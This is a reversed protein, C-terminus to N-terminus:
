HLSPASPACGIGSPAPRRSRPKGLAVRRIDGMQAFGNLSELLIEVHKGALSLRADPGASRWLGLALLSRTVQAAEGDLCGLKRVDPRCAADHQTGPADIRRRVDVRALDGVDGAEALIEGVLEDDPTVHLFLSEAVSGDGHDVRKLHLADVPL